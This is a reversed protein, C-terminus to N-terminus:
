RMRAAYFDLWQRLVTERDFGLAFERAHRSMAARNDADVARGVAAAIDEPDRTCVFGAGAQALERAGGVDDTTVVPLGCALAELAANPSPDYLSPLVFVDAAHLVARVDDLPGTLRIRAGAGSKRAASELAAAAKDRGCVLLSVEPLHRMAEVLRFAGKRAFGSGVFCAVPADPPLNWAERCRARQEATAPAFHATDVGNPILTLREHPIGLLRHLEDMVLASNAVVHLRDDSAMRRETEIVARHYPDSRLWASRWGPSEREQRAIWAAHVGDGARYIDAGTLREHTQVLDFHNEALVRAVNEGFSRFRAARTWGRARAEIVCPAGNADPPTWKEAIITTAIGREGLRPVLREIFREAGGYPTYRRRIIALKM